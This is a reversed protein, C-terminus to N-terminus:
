AGEDISRKDIRNPRDYIHWQYSNFGLKKIEVWGYLKLENVARRITGEKVPSGKNCIMKALVPYCANFNPSQRYLIFYIMKALLSLEGMGDIMWNPIMTFNKSPKECHKVLRQNM